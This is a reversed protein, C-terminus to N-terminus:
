EVIEILGQNLGEALFEEVDAEATAPEVDAYEATLAAVLDDKTAGEALRTWLLNGSGAISYYVSEKLELAVVEGDVERWTTTETTRYRTTM